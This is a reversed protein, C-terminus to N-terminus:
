LPKVEYTKNVDHGPNMQSIMFLYVMGPGATNLPLDEVPLPVVLDVPVVVNGVEMDLGALLATATAGTSVFAALVEAGVTVTVTVAGACAHAVLTDV